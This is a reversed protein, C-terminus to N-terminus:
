GAQGQTMRGGLSKLTGGSILEGSHLVGMGSGVLTLEADLTGFLEFTKVLRVDKNSADQAFDAGFRTCGDFRHATEDRSRMGGDIMQRGFTLRKDNRLAASSGAETNATIEAAWVLGARGAAWGAIAVGAWM